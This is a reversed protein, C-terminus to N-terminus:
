DSAMDVKRTGYHSFAEVLRSLVWLFLIGGRCGSIVQKLTNSRVAFTRQLVFSVPYDIIYVGSNM